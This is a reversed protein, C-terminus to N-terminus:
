SLLYLFCFSNTSSCFNEFTIEKNDNVNNSVDHLSDM